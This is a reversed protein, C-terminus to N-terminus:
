LRASVAKQSQVASYSMYMHSGEGMSPQINAVTYLQRIQLSSLKSPSPTRLTVRKRCTNDNIDRVYLASLGSLCLTFCLASLGRLCLTFYLASLCSLPRTLAFSFSVFGLFLTNKNFYKCSFFCLFYVYFGLQPKVWGVM